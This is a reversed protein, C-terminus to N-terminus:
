IERCLTAVINRVERESKVEILYKAMETFTFFYGSYKWDSEFNLLSRRPGCREM